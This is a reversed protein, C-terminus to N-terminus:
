EDVGFHQEIMLGYHWPHANEPGNSVVDVCERIMLNCFKEVQPMLGLRQLTNVDFGSRTLLEEIRNNMKIKESNRWM